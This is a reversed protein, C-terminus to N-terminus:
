LKSMKWVLTSWYKMKTLNLLNTTIFSQMFDRVQDKIKNQCFIEVYQKQNPNALLEDPTLKCEQLLCQLKVKKKSNKVQNCLAKTPTEAELKKQGYVKLYEIEESDMKRQINNKLTSIRETLKDTYQKNKGDDTEM